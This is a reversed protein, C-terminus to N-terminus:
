PNMSAAARRIAKIVRTQTGCRCLNPQLSQRIDEEEPDQNEQLLAVASIVMGNQCYGCQPTQEEVFAQQVPHLTGDKQVLGELTIITNRQVSSAPILCSPTAKGDVLVMCSGCQGLGCGYKPGNLALQNRLIYLLPTAPDATITHKQGNVNLTVSQKM